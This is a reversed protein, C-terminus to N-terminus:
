SIAQLRGITDHDLMATSIRAVYATNIAEAQFVSDNIVFIFYARALCAAYDAMMEDFAPAAVGSRALEDLYGAVLAGEWRRRDAPDLACALHYSVEGAAPGRHPLSDFFGPTGDCDVYLNGLHTDGHQIASPRRTALVALRDLAHTMWAPDHFRVSAAAGRPSAIFRGWTQPQLYPDAYARTSAMLEAVWDWRGGPALDPSNWTKAHFRALLTLRRAVEDFSQPRLPNCFAVGRAVLDEMIIVGQRREADYDAFYCAPTPLPVVPFLDRYGRVETEHMFHMDRSHPEFGAKLIVTEPIGAARGAADMELRLRVKTCTGRRVDVVEFGLVTVGPAKARLAATLWDRDIEEIALPLPFVPREAM